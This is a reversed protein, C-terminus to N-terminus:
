ARALALIADGSLEHMALDNTVPQAGIRRYFEIARTNSRNVDWQV